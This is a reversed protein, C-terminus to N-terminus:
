KSKKVELKEVIGDLTTLLWGNPVAVLRNIGTNGTKHQWLLDGTAADLGIILGNKTAFVIQGNCATMACPNCDAAYLAEKKWRQEGDNITADFAFFQGDRTRAWLTQEDSSAGLSAIFRGDTKRWLQAGNTADIAVLAGDATVVFLKGSAFVPQTLPASKLDATWAVHGLQADVAYLRGDYAGFIVKDGVVTAASQIYTQPADCTWLLAGTEVNIAHMRGAGNGIFVVDDLCAPTACVARGTGHKWLLRGTAADLCYINGDASGFLVKGRCVLSAAAIRAPTKYQWVTKGKAIDFCRMMGSEDGVYFRMSDTAVSGYIGQGLSKRWVTKVNKYQKNIGFDPRPFLKADGDAYIRPEVPLALWRREPQGICKESIYLSDAMALLTYGGARQGDRLTSRLVVGQIGDFDLLANRHYHGCFVSQVNYNRLLDTAVEWNDVDGTQLPHHAVFYVPQKRGAQKLNYALWDADQPAIHGDNHRLLPGTNLGLFLYGNFFLRFRTDGFIRAFDTAASESARTDHNGPIAYYPVQLEDLLSKALQLSKTDGNHTLDGCVLVFAVDASANVEDIARQLDEINSPLTDSIHTDSFIAFSFAPDVSTKDQKSPTPFDKKFFTYGTKDTETSKPFDEPKPADNRGRFSPQAVVSGVALLATVVAFFYRKMRLFM